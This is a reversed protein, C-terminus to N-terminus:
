PLAGRDAECAPREPGRGRRRPGWPTAPGASPARGQSTRRRPGPGSAAEGSRCSRGRRGGTAGPSGGASRRCSRRDSGRHRPVQGPEEGELHPAAGREVHGHPEEVLVGPLAQLEEPAPDGVDEELHKEASGVGDAVRVVGVVDHLRENPLGGAGPDVDEPDEVGEVPQRPDQRGDPHDPLGAPDRLGSKAVRAVDVIWAPAAVAELVVHVHGLLQLAVPAWIRPILSMAPSRRGKAARRRTFASFSSIPRGIWKWVWSVAPIWPADRRNAHSAPTSTTSVAKPAIDLRVDCGFRSDM